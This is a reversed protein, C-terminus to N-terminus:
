GACREVLRRALVGAAHRRYSSTSRHDTIPQVAREVLRAVEGLEAPSPRPGAGLLQEADRARVPTPAVSGLAIRWEGDDTRMVCASVIAIVMANRVGVKAFEQRVPVEAPLLAASILEDEGISTLKPGLLFEDWRVRRTGRVSALEIEADLAALWPLGDGAPSATGLNGGMTGRSRIQPSGVTRALQALAKFSGDEMRKWTVAAGLRSGEWRRLEPVRRLSIVAEPRHHTLNVEVMLDTGGCLLQATPYAARAAVAEELTTPTLFEVPRGGGRAIM